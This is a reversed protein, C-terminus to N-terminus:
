RCGCSCTNNTPGCSGCTSNTGGAALVKYDRLSTPIAMRLDLDFFGDDETNTVDNSTESTESPRMADERYRLPLFLNACLNSFSLRSGKTNQHSCYLHRRSNSSRKRNGFRRRFTRDGRRISSKEHRSRGASGDRSDHELKCSTMARMNPRYAAVSRPTGNAVGCCSCAM